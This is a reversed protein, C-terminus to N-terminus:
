CSVFSFKGDTQTFTHALDSKNVANHSKCKDNEIQMHLKADAAKTNKEEETM